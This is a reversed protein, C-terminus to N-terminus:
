WCLENIEDCRSKLQTLVGRCIPGLLKGEYSAIINTYESWALLYQSQAVCLEPFEALNQMIMSIYQDAMANTAMDIGMEQCASNFMSEVVYLKSMEEQAQEYENNKGFEKTREVIDAIVAKDYEIQQKLLADKSYFTSVIRTPYDKKTLIVPVGSLTLATVRNEAPFLEWHYPSHTYLDVLERYIRDRNVTWTDHRDTPSPNGYIFPTIQWEVQYTDIGGHDSHWFDLVDSNEEDTRKAFRYHNEGSYKGGDWGRRLLEQSFAIPSTNEPIVIEGLYLSSQGILDKPQAFAVATFTCCLLTSLLRKIM